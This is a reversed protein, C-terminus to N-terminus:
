ANWEMLLGWDVASFLLKSHVPPPNVVLGRGIIAYHFWAIAMEKPSLYTGLAEAGEPSILEYCHNRIM